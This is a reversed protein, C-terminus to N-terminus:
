EPTFNPGIKKFSTIWTEIKMAFMEFNLGKGSFKTSQSQDHPQLQCQSKRNTSPRCCNKNKPQNTSDKFADLLGLTRWIASFVVVMARNSGEEVEPRLQRRPRDPSRGPDPHLLQGM